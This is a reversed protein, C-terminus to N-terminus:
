VVGAIAARVAAIDAGPDTGDSATNRHTSSSALALAACVADPDATEWSSVISADVFGVAAMNAAFRSTAPYDTPSGTGIFLDHAVSGGPAYYALIDSVPGIGEGTIGYTEDNLISDDISLRTSPGTVFAIPKAAFGAATLVTLHKMTLDVVEGVQLLHAPSDGNYNPANINAGVFNRVTIRAAYYADTHEGAYKAINMFHNANRGFCNRITVDRVGSEPATGDQNSSQLLILVGVQADPWSGDFVDGEALVRQASKLEFSNKVQYIGQWAGRKKFLHNRTMTIDSPVVGAVYPDGGGFMVNEGAAGLYNNHILYPGTGAWGCIANTDGSDVRHADDLWCDIFAVTAGNLAVCRRLAAVLPAHILCRDFIFHHPMSGLTPSLSPDTINIISFIESALPLAKFEIGIFRYHHAGTATTLLGVGGAPSTSIKPAGTMSAPTVRVGIPPVTEARVTVWGSGGNVKFPATLIEAFTQANDLVVVDGMNMADFASQVTMYPRTPGVLRAPGEAPLTTDVSLRPLEAYGDFLSTSVPVHRLGRGAMAALGM